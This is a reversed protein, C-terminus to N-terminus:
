GEAIVLSSLLTWPSSYCTQVTVFIGTTFNTPERGDVSLVSVPDESSGTVDSKIIQSVRKKTM